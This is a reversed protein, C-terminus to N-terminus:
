ATPMDEDAFRLAIARFTEAVAEFADAV